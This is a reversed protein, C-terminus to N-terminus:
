HRKEEEKVPTFRDPHSAVMNLIVHPTDKLWATNKWSDDILKKKVETTYDIFRAHVDGTVDCDIDLVRCPANCNFDFDKLNLRKIKPSKGTKFQVALTKVDYVISWRTTEGLSVEELIKFAQTIADGQEGETYQEIGRVARVFRDLSDTSNDAIVKEGGFGKCSKLYSLSTEYTSNALARYPLQKATRVVMNGDIFEIVAAQGTRDSILFHLPADNQIIRLESDTAIVDDVTECTDLQYQIWTLSTLAPREDRAPYESEELWMQEVVLGQENMEGPPSSEAMSQNFTVSGFKSVWRAQVETPSTLATKSLERKNVIVLGVGIDFDYNRGFVLEKGDDICFTTCAYPSSGLMFFQVLSVAILTRIFSRKM